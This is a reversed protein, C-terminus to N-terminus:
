HVKNLGAISFIIKLLKPFDQVNNTNHMMYKKESDLEAKLIDHNNQPLNHISNLYNEEPLM